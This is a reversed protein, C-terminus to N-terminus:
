LIIYAGLVLTLQSQNHCKIKCKREQYYFSFCKMQM